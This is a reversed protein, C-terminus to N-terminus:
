FIRPPTRMKTFLFNNNPIFNKQKNYNDKYLNQLEEFSILNM